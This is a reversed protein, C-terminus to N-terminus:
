IELIKLIKNYYEGGNRNGRVIDSLYAVSIDLEDALKKFTYGKRKMAIRIKEEQTLNETTM